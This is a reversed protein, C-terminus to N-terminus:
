SADGMWEDALSSRCDESLRGFHADAVALATGELGVDRLWGIVLGTPGELRVHPAVNVEVNEAGSADDWLRCGTATM